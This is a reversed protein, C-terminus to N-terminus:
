AEGQEQILERFAYFISRVRSGNEGGGKPLRVQSISSVTGDVTLDWGTQQLREWNGRGQDWM